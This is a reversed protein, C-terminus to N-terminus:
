PNPGAPRENKKDEAPNESSAGIFRARGSGQDDRELKVGLSRFAESQEETRPTIQDKYSELALQELLGALDTHGNESAMVAATKNDQNEADVNAGSEILASVLQDNGHSAALMLPTMSRNSTINLCEAKQSPDLEKFSELDLLSKYVELVENIEDENNSDAVGDLQEAIGRFLPSM